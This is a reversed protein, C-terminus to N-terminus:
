RWLFIVANALAFIAAIAASKWQGERADLVGIGAQAAIMLLAIALRM